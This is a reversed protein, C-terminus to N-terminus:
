CERLLTVPMVYQEGGSIKVSIPTVPEDSGVSPLLFEGDDGDIKTLGMGVLGEAYEKFNKASAASKEYAEAYATDACARNLYRPNNAHM